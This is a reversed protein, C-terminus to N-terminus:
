NIKKITRTLQYKKTKKVPKIDGKLKRYRKQFDERTGYADKLEKEANEKRAHNFSARKSKADDYKKKDTSNMKNYKDQSMGTNGYNTRENKIATFKDIRPQSAKKHKLIAKSIANLSSANVKKKKDEPM